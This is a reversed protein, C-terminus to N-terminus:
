KANSLPVVNDYISLQRGAKRLENWEEFDNDLIDIINDKTSNWDKGLTAVMNSWDEIDHPILKHDIGIHRLEHYILAIVQERSMNDIYYSRTELIYWYGSLEQFQKNAAQIRGVWQPKDNDPKIWNTDELFLIRQVPVHCLEKFKMVLALAIPRYIENKIWHKDDFRANDLKTVKHIRGSDESSAYQINYGGSFEIDELCEGTSKDTLLLRRAM